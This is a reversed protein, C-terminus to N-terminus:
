ACRERSEVPEFVMGEAHLREADYPELEQKSASVRHVGFESVDAAADNWHMEEM